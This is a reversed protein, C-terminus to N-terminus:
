EGSNSTNEAPYSEQEAKNLLQLLFKINEESEAFFYTELLQIRGTHDIIVSTPLTRLGFADWVKKGEDLVTPFGIGWETIFNEIHLIDHVGFFETEESIGIIVISASLDQSIEQLFTM